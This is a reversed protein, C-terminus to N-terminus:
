DRRTKPSTLCSATSRSMPWPLDRTGSSSTWTMTTTPTAATRRSTAGQLDDATGGTSTNYGATQTGPPTYAVTERGTIFDLITDTTM